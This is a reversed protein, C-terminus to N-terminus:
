IKPLRLEKLFENHEDSTKKNIDILEKIHRKLKILSKM